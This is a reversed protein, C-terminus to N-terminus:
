PALVELDGPVTNERARLVPVMKGDVMEASVIGVISVYNGVQPFSMSQLVKIGKTDTGNWMDAGDDLIFYDPFFEAKKIEGFTRVLLGQNLLGGTRVVGNKDVYGKGGVNQNNVTRIVTSGTGVVQVDSNLIVREGNANTDIRGSVLVTDNINPFVQDNVVRIGATGDPDQMYFFQTEGDLLSLAGFTVVMPNTITVITGDKEAKAAGITPVDAEASKLDEPSRVELVNPRGALDDSERRSIVGTIDIVEGVAPLQAATVGSDKWILVQGPATGSTEDTVTMAHWLPDADPTVSAVTVGSLRVLSGWRPDSLNNMNDNIDDAVAPDPDAFPQNVAVRAYNTVGNIRFEQFMGLTKVGEVVVRDGVQPAPSAEPAYVRIGVNNTPTVLGNSNNGSSDRIYFKPRAQAEDAPNYGAAVVVAEVAVQSGTPANRVAAITISGLTADNVPTAVAGLAVATASSADGAGYHPKSATVTFTGPNVSLSYTGDAATKGTYTNTGDTASVNAGAIPFGGSKHTVVGSLTGGTTTLECTGTGTKAGNDTASIVLEHLGARATAKAKIGTVEYTATNGSSSVLIAATNASYGLPGLDVVVSTITGAGQADRLNITLTTTTTDDLPITDPNFACSEVVPPTNGGTHVFTITDQSDTSGGDPLEYLYAWVGQIYTGQVILANGWADFAAKGAPSTGIAFNGIKTQTAINWVEINGQGAQEKTVVAIDPNVPSIAVDTAGTVALQFGTDEVVGINDWGTGTTTWRRVWNNPHSAIYWVAETIDATEDGWGMGAGSSDTWSGSSVTTALVKFASYSAPPTYEPELEVAGFKPGSSLAAVYAPDDGLVDIDRTNGMISSASRKADSGDWNFSAYRTQSRDSSFVRGAQSVALGWPSSGGVLGTPWGPLVDPDGIVCQAYDAGAPNGPLWVEINKSVTNSLYINGFTSASPDQQNNNAPNTDADIGFYRHATPPQISHDRIRFARGYDPTAPVPDRSVTITAYYTGTPASTGGDITGDWSVQHPGDTLEGAGLTMTRVVAQTSANKIQITGSNAPLNLRYHITATPDSGVAHWRVIGIAAEAGQSSGLVLCGAAVALLACLCVLRRLAM